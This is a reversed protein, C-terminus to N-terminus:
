CGDSGDSALTKVAKESTVYYSVAARGDPCLEYKVESYSTPTTAIVTYDPSTLKAIDVTAFDAISTPYAGTTVNYVEAKRIVDKAYVIGSSNKAREQVGVYTVLTLPILILLALSALTNLVVGVIGLVKSAHAKSSKVLSVISLILGIPALGIVGLVIGIIGLVKGPNAVPAAPHYSPAVPAPSANSPANPVPNPTLQPNQDGQPNM